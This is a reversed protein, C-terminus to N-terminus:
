DAALQDETQKDFLKQVMYNHGHFMNHQVALTSLYIMCYNEGIEWWGKFIHM